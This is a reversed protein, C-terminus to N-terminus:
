SRPTTEDLYTFAEDLLSRWAHEGADYPMAVWERMTRGSMTVRTATGADELQGARDAPIKVMLQGSHNVLGFVKGRVRLGITSFMRGWDVGPRTLYDGALAELRKDGREVADHDIPM